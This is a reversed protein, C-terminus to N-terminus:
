LTCQILDPIRLSSRQCYSCELYVPYGPRDQDFGGAVHLREATIYEPTDTALWVAARAVENVATRRGM